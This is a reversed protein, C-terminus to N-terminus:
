PYTSSNKLKGLPQNRKFLQELRCSLRGVDSAFPQVQVLCHLCGALTQFSSLIEPFLSDSLLYIVENYNRGLQRYNLGCLGTESM